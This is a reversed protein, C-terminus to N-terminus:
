QKKKINPVDNHSNLLKQLETIKTSLFDVLSKAAPLDMYIGFDYERIIGTKSDESNSSFNGVTGQETIDFDSAKPIPLREAYFSLNILGRTTLGGYAGDVHIQRYNPSIKNYITVKNKAM